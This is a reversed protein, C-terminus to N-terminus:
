IDDDWCTWEHYTSTKSRRFGTQISAKHDIVEDWIVLVKAVTLAGEDFSRM